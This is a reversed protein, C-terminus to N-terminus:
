GWGIRRAHEVEADTSELRDLLEQWDAPRQDIALHQMDALLTAFGITCGHRLLLSCDPEETVKRMLLGTTSPARYSDHSTLSGSLAGDHPTPKGARWHRNAAHSQDDGHATDLHSVLHETLKSPM